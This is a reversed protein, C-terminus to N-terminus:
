TTSRGRLFDGSPIGDTTGPPQKRATFVSPRRQRFNNFLRVITMMPVVFIRHISALGDHTVVRLPSSNMINLPLLTYGIANTLASPLQPSGADYVNRLSKITNCNSSLKARYHLSFILGPDHEAILFDLSTENLAL